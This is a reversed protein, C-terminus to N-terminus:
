RIFARSSEEAEQELLEELRNAGLNYLFKECDKERTADQGIQFTIGIDVSVRVNDKTPCNEIPVNYRISNKSIQAAIKKYSCFCCYYGPEM